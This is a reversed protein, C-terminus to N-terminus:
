KTLVIRLSDAISDYSLHHFEFEEFTGGDIFTIKTSPNTYKKFDSNLLDKLTM